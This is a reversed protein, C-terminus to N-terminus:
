GPARTSVPREISATPCPATLIMWSTNNLVRGCRALTSGSPTSLCVVAGLPHSEGGARCYCPIGAEEAAAPAVALLAVAIGLLADRARM